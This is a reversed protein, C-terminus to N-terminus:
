SDGPIIISIKAGNLTESKGLTLEGGHDNIIKYVIALGLGNGAKRTTFYPELAKEMAANSFGPGDDEITIFIRSQQLNCQLLITGLIQNSSVQEINAETISNIANQYLNMMVQNFQVSDFKCIISEPNFEYKFLINKHANSQIFIVEKLLQVLDNTEMTPAPMRAFDSFEKILTSICNVQRIITNLCLDFTEPSSKIESKYKSKIREASLLIPTLPNKVEHAIKRALDRWAMQKNSIILQQKQHELQEVMNNFTKILDDWENNFKKNSLIPVNYNGSSISNTASILSNIPTLIWKTFILGVLIVFLLLLCTIACFLMMFTVKIGTRKTILASYQNNALEIKNRYDIVTQKLPSTIMVFINSEYNLKQIAIVFDNLEYVFIEKEPLINLIQPLSTYQIALSFASKALVNINDNTLQFVMIDVNSNQTENEIFQTLKSDNDIYKDINDSLTYAYNKLSMKIDDTYVNAMAQSNDMVDKVPSKFLHEIGINFFVLAFVFVLMAPLITVGSFLLIIQKHFKKWKKQRKQLKIIHKIKYLLFICIITFLCIDLYILCFLQISNQIASKYVILYSIYLFTLIAISIIWVFRRKIYLIYNM